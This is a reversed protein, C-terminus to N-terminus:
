SNYLNELRLGKEILEPLIKKFLFSSIFNNQYKVIYEIMIQVAKVQNSRLSSELASRYFFRADKATGKQIRNKYFLPYQM